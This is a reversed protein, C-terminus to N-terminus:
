FKGHYIEEKRYVRDILLRGNKDALHLLENMIFNRVEEYEKGPSVAGGPNV